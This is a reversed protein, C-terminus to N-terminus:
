LLKKKHNMKNDACLQRCSSYSDIAEDRIVMNSVHYPM